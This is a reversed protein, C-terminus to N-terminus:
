LFLKWDNALLDSHSPNWPVSRLDELIYIFRREMGVDAIQSLGIYSDGWGERQMLKCHKVHVLAESFSMDM